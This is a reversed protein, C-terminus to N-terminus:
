SITYKINQSQIYIKCELYEGIFDYSKLQIKSTTTNIPTVYAMGMVVEVGYKINNKEM